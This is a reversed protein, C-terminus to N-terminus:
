LGLAGLACAREVWLLANYFGLCHGHLVITYPITYAALVNWFGIFGVLPRNQHEMNKEAQKEM